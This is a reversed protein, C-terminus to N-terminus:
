GVLIWDTGNPVFRLYSFDVAPIIKFVAGNILASDPTAVILAGTGSPTLIIIYEAPEVDAMAPLQISGAGVAVTSFFVVHESPKMQYTSSGFTGDALTLIIGPMLAASIPYRSLHELAEHLAPVTDDHPGVRPLRLPTSYPVQEM